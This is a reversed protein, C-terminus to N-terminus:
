NTVAPHTPQAMQSMCRTIAELIRLKTKLSTPQSTMSVVLGELKKMFMNPTAIEPKEFVADAGAKVCARDDGPQIIGTIVLLLAEPAHTRIHAIQTNITDQRDSDPLGLDVTIIEPKEGSELIFKSADKMTRAVYPRSTFPRVMDALLSASFEDDEIILVTM